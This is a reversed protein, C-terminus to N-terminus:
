AEEDLGELDAIGIDIYFQRIDQKEVCWIKYGQARDLYGYRQYLMVFVNKQIEPDRRMRGGQIMCGTETTFTISPNDMFICRSMDPEGNLAACIALIPVLPM